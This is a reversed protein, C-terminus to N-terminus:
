HNGQRLKKIRRFSCMFRMSKKEGRPQKGPHLIIKKNVLELQDIKYEKFVPSDLLLQEIADLTSQEPIPGGLWVATAVDTSQIKDKTLEAETEDLIHIVNPDELIDDIPHNHGIRFRITTDSTYWGMQLPAIYKDNIAKKTLTKALDGNTLPRVTNEVQPHWSLIFTATDLESLSKWIKTVADLVVQETAGFEMAQQISIPLTLKVYTKFVMNKFIRKKHSPKKNSRSKFYVPTSKSKMVKSLPTPSKGEDTFKLTKKLASMRKPLTAPVVEDVKEENTSNNITREVHTKKADKYM